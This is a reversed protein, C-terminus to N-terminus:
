HKDVHWFYVEANAEKKLYQMKFFGAKIPQCRKPGYSSFRFKTLYSIPPSIDVVINTEM